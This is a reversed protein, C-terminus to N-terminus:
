LVPVTRAACLQLQTCLAIPEAAQGLEAVYSAVDLECALSLARLLVFRCDLACPALQHKGLSPWM